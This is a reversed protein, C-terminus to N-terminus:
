GEDKNYFSYGGGPLFNISNDADSDDIIDTIICSRDGDGYWIAGVELAYANIPSGYWSNYGCVYEIFSDFDIGVLGKGALSENYGVSSAFSDLSYNRGIIYDSDVVPVGTYEVGAKFKANEYTGFAVNWGYMPYSDSTIYAYVSKRPMDVAPTWKIDTLQRARKIQNLVNWSRPVKHMGLKQAEAKLSNDVGAELLKPRCVLVM